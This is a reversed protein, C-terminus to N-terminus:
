DPAPLHGPRARARRVADDVLDQAVRSLRVQQARSASRLRDMAEAESTGTRSRVVGVAQDIIGRTTLAEQMQSALRQSRALLHANHASVAAPLAYLEGIRVADATFADRARAYVNMAGLVREGLLLPLSLASNVGLRGVRPGFRPWRPEGGLSGAVQTRGTAVALLCPGEGLDYQIDDVAHVFPASAVVTQPRDDELVTLGAGDAGPIAHVAFGAIRVLTENWTQEGTLLRSLGALSDALDEDV